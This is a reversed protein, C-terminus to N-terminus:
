IKRYYKDAQWRIPNEDIYRWVFEYQKRTRIIIDHFSRQWISDKLKKTVSGKFQQVVTSLTPAVQPRRSDSATIVIIMHIHNPMIIYKDVRVNDYVSSLLSIENEIIKGYDSLNLRVCNAGVNGLICRMDEVCLTIFYYGPQSYDHGRLRNRKRSPNEDM